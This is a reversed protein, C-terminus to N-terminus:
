TLGPALYGLLEVNFMPERTGLFKSGSLKEREVSPDSVVTRGVTRALLTKLALASM